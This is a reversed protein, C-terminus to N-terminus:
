LKRTWVQDDADEHTLAFGLRQPVAASRANRPSCRIEISRIGSMKGASAVLASVAETVIGKGEAASDIWYGIEVRDADPLACRGNENRPFLGAEGLIRGDDRMIMAHRFNKGGAFDAAFGALREALEGVPAATGVHAPIWPLLRSENAALIPALQAADDPHWPRLVLRDTQLM